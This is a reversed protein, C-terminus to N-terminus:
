SRCDEVARAPEAASRLILPMAGSAGVWLRGRSFAIADLLPDNALVMNGMGLQRESSTTAIRIPAAALLGARSFSVRRTSRMCRIVLQVGRSDSFVAESADPANRWTWAGATIPRIRWDAPAPQPAAQPLPVAAAQLAALIPILM